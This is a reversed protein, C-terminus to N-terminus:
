LFILIDMTQYTLFPSYSSNGMRICLQNSFEVMKRKEKKKQSNQGDQPSEQNKDFQYLFVKACLSRIKEGKPVM